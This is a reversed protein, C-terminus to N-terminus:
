RARRSGLLEDDNGRGDLVGVLDAIMRDGEEERPGRRKMSSFVYSYRAPACPPPLSQKRTQRRSRPCAPSRGRDGRGVLRREEAFRRARASSRRRQQLSAASETMIGGVNGCSKGTKRSPWSRKSACIVCRATVRATVSQPRRVRARNPELRLRGRHHRGPDCDAWRRATNACLACRSRAIPPQDVSSVAGEVFYLLEAVARSRVSKAGIARRSPRGPWRPWHAGIERTLSPRRMLTSIRGPIDVGGVYTGRVSLRDQGHFGFSPVRNIMALSRGCISGLRAQTSRCVVLRFRSPDRAEGAELRLEARATLLMRVDDHKLSAVDALHELDLAGLRDDTSRHGHLDSEVVIADRAPVTAHQVSPPCTMM